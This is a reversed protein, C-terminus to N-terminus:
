KRNADLKQQIKNRAKSKILYDYAKIPFLSNSNPAYVMSKADKIFKESISLDRLKASTLDRKINMLPDKIINKVKRPKKIEEEDKEITKVSKGIGKKKSNKSDKRNNNVHKEGDDFKEKSHFQAFLPLNRSFRSSASYEGFYEKAKYSLLPPSSNNLFTQFKSKEIYYWFYPNTNLQFVTTEQQSTDLSTDTENTTSLSSDRQNNLRTESVNSTDLTENYSTVTNNLEKRKQEIENEQISSAKEVINPEKLRSQVNIPPLLKTGKNLYKRNLYTKYENIQKSEKKENYNPHLNDSTTSVSEDVVEDKYTKIFPSLRFNTVTNLNLNKKKEHIKEIESDNLSQLNFTITNKSNNVFYNKNYKKQISESLNPLITNSIIVDIAKNSGDFRNIEKEKFIPLEKTPIVPLVSIKKMNDANNKKLISPKIKTNRIM